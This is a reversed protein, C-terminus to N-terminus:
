RAILRDVEDLKVKVVEVTQKKRSYAVFLAADHEIVHPYQLSTYATSGFRPDHMWDDHDLKAPIPLLAMHTFILGDRSVSLCLPNRRKPNPNSIMVWYGRSTKVTNFKSTADPFNTRVMKSWTQGNDTSFARMIRGSRSNDRFLGVLNKDPLTWWFPEEPRGGDDMTYASFPVVRWDDIAKVGGIMISVSRDSARRSIMWEGTPLKKPPFNNMANDLIRQAPGWSKSKANWRFAVLELGDGAYGPGKFLSALAILEGERIWMGRAIYGFGAKPPGALVKVESWNLGDISTAYRLHQTARDEVVPGHSWFCWFRGDFHALYNHLRFAWDKDGLSVIAHDGALRPLKAFDIKTPDTESGPLDLMLQSAPNTRPHPPTLNTAVPTQSRPRPPPAKTLGPKVIPATALAAFSGAVRINQFANKNAGRVLVRSLNADSRGERNILTWNADPKPDANPDRIKVFAEDPANKHSNIQLLLLQKKAPDIVPGEVTKQYLWLHTRGKADIGLRCREQGSSTALILEAAIPPNSPIYEANLHLTAGEDGLDIWDQAQCITATLALGAQGAILIKM